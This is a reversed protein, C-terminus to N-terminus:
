RVVARGTASQRAMSMRVLLCLGIIGNSHATSANESHSAGSRGNQHTPNGAGGSIVFEVFTFRDAHTASFLRAYSSSVYLIQNKM